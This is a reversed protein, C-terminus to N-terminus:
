PDVGPPASWKKTYAQVRQEFASVRRLFPTRDTDFTRSPSNFRDREARLAQAEANYQDVAGRNTADPRQSNHAAIRRALDDHLFQLQRRRSLFQQTQSRIAEAELNLALEERQRELMQAYAGSDVARPRTWTTTPPATAGRNANERDVWAMTKDTVEKRLREVLLRQQAQWDAYQSATEDPRRGRHLAKDAKRWRDAADDAARRAQSRQAASTDASTTPSPLRSAPADRFDPFPERSHDRQPDVAPRGEPTDFRQGDRLAEEAQKKPFGDNGLKIGPRPGTTPPTANLTEPLRVQPYQRQFEARGARYTMEQRVQEAVRTARERQLDNVQREAAAIAQQRRARETGDDFPSPVSQRERRLDQETQKIKAGIESVATELKKWSIEQEAVNNLAKLEETSLSGALADLPSKADQKPKDQGAVLGGAFLLILILAANFLM